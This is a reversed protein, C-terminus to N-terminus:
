FDHSKRQPIEGRRSVPLIVPTGADVISYSMIKPISTKSPLAVCYTDQDRIRHLGVGKRSQGGRSKKFTLSIFEEM